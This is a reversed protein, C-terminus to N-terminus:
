HIAVFNVPQLKEFLAADMALCAAESRRQDWKHELLESAEALPREGQVAPPFALIPYQRRSHSTNGHAM